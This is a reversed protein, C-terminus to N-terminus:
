AVARWIGLLALLTGLVVLVWSWRRWKVKLKDLAATRGLLQSEFDELVARLERLVPMHAVKLVSYGGFFMVLLTGVFVGPQNVRYVGDANDVLTTVAWTLMLLTAACVWLWMEYKGRLFELRGKVAEALSEDMRDLRGVQGMLYVGFAISGVTLATVVAHVTLMTPNSYYGALNVGQLVLTVLLVVLYLWLYLKLIWTARWVRPRLANAIQERSM